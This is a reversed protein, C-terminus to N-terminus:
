FTCPKSRQVLVDIDAPIKKCKEVSAASGDQVQFAGWCLPTWPLGWIRFGEIEVGSDQGDSIVNLPSSTQTASKSGFLARPRAPSAPRLLRLLGPESAPPSTACRVELYTANPLSTVLKRAAQASVLLEALEQPTAEFLSSRSLRRCVAGVCHTIALPRNPRLRPKGTRVVLEDVTLEM